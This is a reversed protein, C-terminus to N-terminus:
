KRVGKSVAFILVYLFLALAAPIWFLEESKQVFRGEQKQAELRNIDDYINLLSHVDKARYYNGRTKAALEKLGAEDIAGTRPMTLLGGWFTQEDSGVGITYIRANESEALRIAEPFSLSGDNNEGDTLLIVVKDKKDADTEALNKLAIGIADGISTSNGAMGADLLYLTDKVSKKDYTLPVQLYARTGFVTLGIRDDTREDVFDSVVSKVASLRDYVRNQYRFDRERMSNSIDVVLMIDRGEHEVRLPEGVLQPRALAAVCLIWVAMMAAFRRWSVMRGRFRQYKVTKAQTNIQQLDGTFPVRLANGYMKGAKPLLMYVVFPLLILWLLQPYAIEIM